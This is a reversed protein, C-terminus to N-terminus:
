DSVEDLLEASRLHGVLLELAAAREDIVDPYTTSLPRQGVSQADRLVAGFVM